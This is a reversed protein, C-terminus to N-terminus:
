STYVPGSLNASIIKNWLEDSTETAPTYDDLVGAVNCLVNISGLADKAASVAASVAASDSVDVAIAAVADIEAAVQELADKSRDLVAVRDGAKAFLPAVGKGIGSAAGTVIVGRDMVSRGKTM